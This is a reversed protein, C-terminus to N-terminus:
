VCNCVGEFIPCECSTLRVNLEEKKQTIKNEEMRM